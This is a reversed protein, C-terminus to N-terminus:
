ELLFDYGSFNSVSFLVFCFLFLFMLLFLFLVVVVVGFCSVFCVCVFLLLLLCWSMGVWVGVCGSLCLYIMYSCMIRYPFFYFAFDSHYYLTFFLCFFEFLFFTCFCMCVNYPSFHLLYVQAIGRAFHYCSAPFELIMTVRM